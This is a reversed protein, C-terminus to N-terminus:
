AHCQGRFDGDHEAPDVIHPAVQTNVLVRNMFEIALHKAVRVFGENCIRWLQHASPEASIREIGDEDTPHHCSFQFHFKRPPAVLVMDSTSSSRAACCKISCPM